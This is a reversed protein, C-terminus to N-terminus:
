AAKLRSPPKASKRDNRRSRALADSLNRIEKFRLVSPKSGRVIRAKNREAPLLCMAREVACRLKMSGHNSLEVLEEPNVRM